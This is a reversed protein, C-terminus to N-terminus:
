LIWTKVGFCVLAAYLGAVMDDLMIGLGGKLARDMWNAPWPKLVDFVRFAFFGVLYLLPDLGAPVLTLWQGAVEDIVVPGPDDKDCAEAYRASAWLGVLFALLSAALLVWPGAAPGSAWVIAAAFPLAAASGWTGPAIPLLGSGFWTAILSAPHLFPLGARDSM